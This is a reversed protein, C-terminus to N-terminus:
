RSHSWKVARGAELDYVLYYGQDEFRWDSILYNGVKNWTVTGDRAISAIELESLPDGLRIESLKPTKHKKRRVWDRYDQETCKFEYTRGVASFPYSPNFRIDKASSPLDDVPFYEAQEYYTPRNAEYWDDFIAYFIFLVPLAAVVFLILCGSRESWKRQIMPPPIVNAEGHLNLQRM